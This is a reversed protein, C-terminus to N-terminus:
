VQMEQTGQMAPLNKVALDSTFGIYIYKKGNYTLVLISYLEKKSYLLNKNSIYTIYLPIYIYHIHIHLM